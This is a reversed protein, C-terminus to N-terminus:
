GGVLAAVDARDVAAAVDAGELEPGPAVGVLPPRPLRWSVVGNRATSVRGLSPPAMTWTPTSSVPLAIGASGSGAPAVRRYRKLKGPEGTGEVALPTSSLTVIM